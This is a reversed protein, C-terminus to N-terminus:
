AGVLCLNLTPIDNLCVSESESKVTIIRSIATTNLKATFTTRTSLVKLTFLDSFVDVVM